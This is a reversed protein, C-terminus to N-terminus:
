DNGYEDCRRIWAQNWLLGAEERGKPIGDLLHDAGNILDTGRGYSSYTHYVAGTKGPSKVKPGCIGERASDLILRNIRFVDIM